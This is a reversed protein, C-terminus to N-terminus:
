NGFEKKLIEEAAKPSHIKKLEEKQHYFSISNGIWVLAYVLFLGSMLKILKKRPLGFNASFGVILLMGAVAVGLLTVPPIYHVITSLAQAPLAAFVLNEYIKKFSLEQGYFFMFIYYFLGSFVTIMILASFPYAFFGNIIALPKAALVGSLLGCTAAFAGTLFLMKAWSWDPLQQMGLIPNRFFTILVQITELIEKKIKDPSGDVEDM